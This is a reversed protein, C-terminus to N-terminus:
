WYFNVCQKLIVFTFFVELIEETAVAVFEGSDFTEDPVDVGVSVAELHEKGDDGLIDDVDDLTLGGFGDRM